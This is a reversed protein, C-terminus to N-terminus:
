SSRRHVPHRQVPKPCLLLTNLGPLTSRDPFNDLIILAGEQSFLDHQLTQLLTSLGQPTNASLSSLHLADLLDALLTEETAMNIWCFSVSRLLAYCPLILLFISINQYIASLESTRKNYHSAPNATLLLHM